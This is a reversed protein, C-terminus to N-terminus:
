KKLQYGTANMITQISSTKDNLKNWGAIINDTSLSKVLRVGADMAKDVIRSIASIAAISLANFKVEVKDVADAMPNLSFKQASNNLEDMGKVAGEFKLSEKFKKLTNMSTSVNKEFNRNDFKMEVVRQDVENSM